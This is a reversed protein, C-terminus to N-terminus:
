YFVDFYGFTVDTNTVLYIKKGLFIILIQVCQYEEYYFRM